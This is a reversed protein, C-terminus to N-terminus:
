LGEQFLTGNLARVRGLAETATLEQEHQSKLWELRQRHAELLLSVPILGRGFLREMQEDKKEISEPTLSSKLARVAGAYKTTWIDRQDLAEKYIAAKALEARRVAEQAFAQGGANRHYLPLAIALNEGFATLHQSGQRQTELTPGLRLDPWRLAKAIDAQAAALRIDADASQTTASNIPGSSSVLPPWSTRRGFLLGPKPDFTRGISREIERSLVLTEADLTTKKMEYDNGAMEFLGLSMAQEPSLSPRSHFQKEIRGYAAVAESVIAGEEQLQRLRVLALATTLYVDERVRLVDIERKQADATAHSLRLSRKGGLEFTHAINFETYAYGNDGSKGWVSQNTLEPNIRQRAVTKLAIGQSATAAALQIDPHNELACRLVDQPSTLSDCSAAFVLRISSCLFLSAFFFYRM